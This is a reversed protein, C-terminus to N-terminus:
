LSAIAIRGKAIFSVGNTASAISIRKDAEGTELLAIGGPKVVISNGPTADAGINLLIDNTGLNQLMLRDRNPNTSCLDRPVNAQAITGSYDPNTYTTTSPNPTAGTVTELAQAIRLLLQTDNGKFTTL